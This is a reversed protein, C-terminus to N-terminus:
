KCYLFFFNHHFMKSVELIKKMLIKGNISKNEFKSFKNNNMNEFDNFANKRIGRSSMYTDNYRNSSSLDTFNTYNKNNTSPFLGINTIFKTFNQFDFLVDFHKLSNVLEPITIECVKLKIEDNNENTNYINDDNNKNNSRFNHDDDNDNYNNKDKVNQILYKRLQFLTNNKDVCNKILQEIIKCNNHKNNSQNDNDYSGSFENNEGSKEHISSTLTRLFILFPLYKIKGNNESCLLKALKDLDTKQINGLM